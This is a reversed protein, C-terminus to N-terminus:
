WDEPLGITMVRRTKKPDAPDESLAEFKLDYYDIKWWFERQCLEFRGYDREGHPDNAETFDSYGQVKVLAAAKVMDPLEAVSATLLIKGGSFARRFCDNLERIRAVKDPSLVDM